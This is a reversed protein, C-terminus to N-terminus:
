ASVLTDAELVNWPARAPRWLGCAECLAVVMAVPRRSGGAPSHRAAGCAALSSYHGALRELETGGTSETGGEVMGDDKEM